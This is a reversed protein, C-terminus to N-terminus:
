ERVGPHRPHHHKCTTSPRQSSDCLPKPTTTSSLSTLSYDVTRSVANRVKIDLLLWTGELGPEALYELLDKLRPMTQHPEAITKLHSIDKWDCDIIKDPRGFCRKLTADHSLVVTNDKTIHVDTEIAHAGVQVAGKFAGMTNEPFKAKYGRHAIAHPLQRGKETRALAFPGTTYILLRRVCYAFTNTAGVHALTQM